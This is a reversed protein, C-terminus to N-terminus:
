ELLESDIVCRFGVHNDSVGRYLGGRHSIPFAGSRELDLSGGRVVRIRAEGFTAPWAVAESPAGRYNPHYCDSCWEKLTSVVDFLGWPNAPNKGVPVGRYPPPGSRVYSYDFGDGWWYRTTTGARAAYEWEAECPLRGGIWDCYASAERLTVMSRAIEYKRKKDCVYEIGTHACFARYAKETVPTRGIWFGRAVIVSHRPKDNTQWPRDDSPSAGMEFQGPPIFVYELEDVRNTWVDLPRPDPPPVGGRSQLWDNRQQRVREEIAQRAAEQQAEQAAQQAEQAAAEREKRERETRSARLRRLAEHARDGQFHTKLFRKWGEETDIEAAIEFAKHESSM